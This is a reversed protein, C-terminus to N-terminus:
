FGSTNIEIQGNSIREAPLLFRWTVTLTVKCRRCAMASCPTVDYADAATRTFKIGQQQGAYCQAPALRRPNM